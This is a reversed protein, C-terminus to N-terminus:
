KLDENKELLERFAADAGKPVHNFCETDEYLSLLEWLRGYIARIMVRTEDEM